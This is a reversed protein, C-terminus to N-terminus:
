IKVYYIFMIFQIRIKAKLISNITICTPMAYYDDTVFCLNVSM